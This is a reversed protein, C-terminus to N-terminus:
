ANVGEEILLIDKEQLMLIGDEDYDNLGSFRIIDGVKCDLPIRKGKKGRKGPGVSLIEGRWPGSDAIEPRHIKSDQPVELRKVCIRDNM